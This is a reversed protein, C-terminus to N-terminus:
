ERDSVRGDDAAGPGDGETRIRGAGDRVRFHPRHRARARDLESQKWEDAEARRQYNQTQIDRQAKGKGLKMLFWAFLAKFIVGSIIKSLLTTLM